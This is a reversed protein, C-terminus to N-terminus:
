RGGFKGVVVGDIVRRSIGGKEKIGTLVRTDWSGEERMGVAVDGTHVFIQIL